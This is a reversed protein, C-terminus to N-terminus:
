ADRPPFSHPTLSLACSDDTRVMSVARWETEGALTLTLTDARSRIEVITSGCSHRLTLANAASHPPQRMTFLSACYVPAATERCRAVLVPIPHAEAEGRTVAWGRLPNKGGCVTTLDITESAAVIAHLKAGDKRRAFVAGDAISVTAGAPFHWLWEWFHPSRDLAELRDVVLWGLGAIDMLLREHRFGTAVRAAAVASMCKGQAVAMPMPERARVVVPEPLHRLGDMLVVNHGESSRILKTEPSQNYAPKGPDICWFDGEGWTIVQLADSHQHGAGWPGADLMSWRGERRLIGYGGWPILTFDDGARWPPSQLGAEPGPLSALDAFMREVSFGDCDHMGPVRGDPAAIRAYVNGMERLHAWQHPHIETGRMRPNAPSANHGTNDALKLACFSCLMSLRGYSAALEGQCGDPYFQRQMEAVTRDIATSAYCDADLLAPLLMGVHALGLNEMTKFNNATPSLLLYRGHERMAAIMLWLTTDGVAESKRFIEFALPWTWGARIGVDITRWTGPLRMDRRPPAPCQSTVWSLLEREFAKAYKDDGTREWARALPVWHYHRNFQVQWEWTQRDGWARTPDFLWDIENEFTHEIGYVGVYHQKVVEDPDYCHGDHRGFEFGAWREALHVYTHELAPLFPQHRVDAVFHTRAALDDGALLAEAWPADPAADPNLIGCAAAWGSLCEDM